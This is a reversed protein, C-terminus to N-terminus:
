RLLKEEGIAKMLSAYGTVLDYFAMVRNNDAQALAVEAEFLELQTGVGNEYRVRAIELGRKAMEVAHGQAALSERAKQYNWWNQEIDLKLNDELDSESLQSQRYEIKAQSVKAPTAWSDFIPISISIGSFSSRAWDKSDPWRNNDYQAQYQLTSLFNINPRYGSNAISIGKKYMKTQLRAMNIEPRSDLAASKLSDLDYDPVIYLTSDMAWVVETDDNLKLGIINNFSQHALKSAAQAQILGPKVNALRVEAMLVEFDSVTGQAEMKKVVDLSAQALDVTQRAVRLLEDAMVVGYYSKIVNLKLEQTKLDLQYETFRRYFKAISWATFVAGGNYIPQTITLSSTWSYNTGSRLRTPKGDFDIVFSPLEWNRLVTLDASVQPFASAKVETVRSKAKELDQIAQQYSENNTLAMNIAEDVTLVETAYGPSILSFILILVVVIKKM